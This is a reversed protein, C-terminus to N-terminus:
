EKIKYSSYNVIGSSNHIGGIDSYDEYKQNEDLKGNLMDKIKQLAKKVYLPDNSSIFKSTDKTVYEEIDKKGDYTLGLRVYLFFASLLYPIETWRKHFNVIIYNGTEDVNAECLPISLKDCFKNLFIETNKARQETNSELNRKSNNRVRAFITLVEKSFIDDHKKHDWSFGFITSSSKKKRSWFIDQFFDKCKVIQSTNEGTEPNLFAMEVQRNGHGIEALSVKADTNETIKLKILAM